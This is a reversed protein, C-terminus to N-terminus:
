EAAGLASGMGAWKREACAALDNASNRPVDREGQQRVERKEYILPM